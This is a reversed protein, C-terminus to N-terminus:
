ECNGCLKFCVVSVRFNSRTEPSASARSSLDNWARMVVLPIAEQFWFFMIRAFVVSRDATELRYSHPVKAICFYRCFDGGRVLTPM